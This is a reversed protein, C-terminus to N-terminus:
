QEFSKYPLYNYYKPYKDLRIHLWSVGMGSTSLWLRTEKDRELRTLMETAVASWLASVHSDHAANEESITSASKPGRIFSALHTMYQLSKSDSLYEGGLVKNTKLDLPCPVVLVCDRGLNEFTIIKNPVARTGRNRSIQEAFPSGNVAKSSLLNSEIVVFEFDTMNLEEYMISKCEWFVAEHKCIARQLASVLKIEGASLLRFVDGFSLYTEDKRIKYREIGDGLQLSIASITTINTYQIAKHKAFTMRKEQFMSSLIRICMYFSILYFVFSSLKIILNM